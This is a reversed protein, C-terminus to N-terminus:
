STGQRFRGAVFVAYVVLLAGALGYWTLAYELHRNPVKLVTVGGRPWGGPNEPSVEADLLFPATRLTKIPGLSALLAELDRWFWLNRDPKNAPTFTGKVGPLRVLGTVEVEGAPQGAPRTAPDKLAEPVFGRNVFVLTGASTELPTYVHIGPGLRQDPAYFYREEGHRFRGRVRVRRYELDGTRRAEAIAADLGVPAGRTREEIRAVIEDKWAKRHLQWTGLAGLVALGVLATLTPGLLGAARSKHPM